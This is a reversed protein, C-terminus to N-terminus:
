SDELRDIWEGLNRHRGIFVRVSLQFPRTSPNGRSVGFVEMM